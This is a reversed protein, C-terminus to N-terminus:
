STRGADGRISAAVVDVARRYNETPVYIEAM